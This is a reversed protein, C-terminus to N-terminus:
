FFLGHEVFCYSDVWLPNLGKVWIPSEHFFSRPAVAFSEGESLHFPGLMNRLSSAITIEFTNIGEHLLSSVDLSYPKWMIKGADIGNVKVSTVTASLASLTFSRNKIEDDTLTVSKKFTMKGAFFPYGQKAINGDTVVTKSAELYFGGATRVAHRELQEFPENTCVAFDGAIYIAEIEMDYSLKNKESEFLPAKKINEYTEPKQEFDCALKIINEGNVVYKRIDITKFATDHLYGKPKNQVASGNVSIDFIEPTEVVLSCNKFSNDKVNFKFVVETKIKRGFACAKDQVDSVPLNEAVLKGDFYLDCYDLTLCNQDSEVIEWEGKLKDSLSILKKEQKEASVHRNSDYVFLIVSGRAYLECSISLMDGNKTFYVADENGSLPNFQSASNGKVAATVSHNKNHPNYIYYMTMGNDNFRRTCVSVPFENQDAYSLEIKKFENPVATAVEARAVNISNKALLKIRDSYKGDIYQPINETFILTGGSTKFEELLKVTNECLCEAPPVIVVSYSQKGIKLVGNEVSAHREMIRGDGLHYQLGANELSQMTELMEDCYRNSTKSGINNGRCYIWGTEITHLVLIKYDIEGEAILMGIRSVMDNFQKYESWWPQHIFLSAPYDRKRIGRLSYGELHQCLYNIGHNLQAEYIARLDEFSVDWGCLAFTESLIQKKGLQAAVSSVQMETQLSALNRGLHDMGPIDMYEYAPMCCGSAFIHSYFSEEIVLHGTLMTNNQLCCDHIKGM